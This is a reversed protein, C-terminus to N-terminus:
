TSQKIDHQKYLHNKKAFDIVEKDFYKVKVKPILSCDDTDLMQSLLVTSVGESVPQRGV